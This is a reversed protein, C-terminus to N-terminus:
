HGGPGWCWHDGQGWVVLPGRAGVVLPGGPGGGSTAGVLLAAPGGLLGGWVFVRVRGVEWGGSM